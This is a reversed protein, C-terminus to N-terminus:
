DWMLRLALGGFVIAALKSIWGSAREIRAAMLGAFAGLVCYVLLEGLALLTGLLLIQQWVPAITPDAFQPLFALVFLGVKPNLINTMFGRRFARWTDSRGQRQAPDSTDTWSNWALWLLYAAGAYRLVDYAIPYTLLLVALGAAAIIVHGMVGLGIGSAAAIGSRAGGRMGSALTFMMDAGPTLYLLLAAGTFTVYTLLPISLALDIM